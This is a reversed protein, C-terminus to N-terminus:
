IFLSPQVISQNAFVGPDGTCSTNEKRNLRKEKETKDHLKSIGYRLNYLDLDLSVL